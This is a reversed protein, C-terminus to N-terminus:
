RLLTQVDEPMFAQLNKQKRVVPEAGDPKEVDKRCLGSGSLGVVGLAPCRRARTLPAMAGVKGHALSPTGRIVMGSSCCLAEAERACQRGPKHVGFM